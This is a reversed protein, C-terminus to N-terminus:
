KKEFCINIDVNGAIGDIKGNETYQWINFDYPYLPKEMYDAYWKEYDNLSELKMRTTFTKANGYVCPKFGSEKIKNCFELALNTIEEQTLNDTRASDNKIKELDFIVPYEIKKDKINNLIMEIEENVENSNIAQSFFYVGINIENNIANQYNEEFKEDILIIGKEGYGRFGLRLIAFEVGADKVKKWDIDGQYSSVDIGIKSKYKEDEYEYFEGNRKLSNDFQYEHKNALNNYPVNIYGDEIDYITIEEKENESVMLNNNKSNNEIKKNDIVKLSGLIAFCIIVIVVAIIIVKNLKM